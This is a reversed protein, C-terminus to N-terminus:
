ATRVSQQPERPRPAMARRPQWPAMLRATCLAFALVGLVYLWTEPISWELLVPRFGLRARYSNFASVAVLAVLFAVWAALVRTRTLFGLPIGFLAGLVASWLVADVGRVVLRASMRDLGLEYAAQTLQITVNGSFPLLSTLAFPWVVGLVAGVLLGRLLANM